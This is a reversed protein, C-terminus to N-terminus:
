QVVCKTVGQFTISRDPRITIVPTGSGFYLTEEGISNLWAPSQATYLIAQAKLSESVAGGACLVDVQVPQELELKGAMMAIHSNGVGIVALNARSTHTLDLTLGELIDMTGTGSDMEQLVVTEVPFEMDAPTQRLDVCLDWAPDGQEYLYQRVANRNSWGGRFLVVAHEQRTIVACPNGATGVLAIRVVGQELPVCLGIAAAGCLLVASIGWKYKKQHWFVGFLVALVALVFITYRRPLVLRAFPLAACWRVVGVLLRLWGELLLSALRFPGNLPSLVLVVLGLLLAPRIMWVVLLNCLVGAGSIELDYFLLAPLTALAALVTTQVTELVRLLISPLKWCSRQWDSLVAATSVGLVASFSLVFGLDCPAYASRVSMLLAAFGTATLLDYPQLFFEGALAILFVSGARVVSASMGTLGMYFLVLAGRALIMRRDFRRRCDMGLGCLLAMHLGSVALLHSVGARRFTQNEAERLSSKDGLLMASEVGGLDWPLWTQLRDSLKRRLRYLLFRVSSDRGLVAGGDLCRAELYVDRSMRTLRYENSPLDNLSLTLKVVDGPATGPFSACYVKFDAKEGDIQQIRLTGRLCDADYASLVCDTEAVAVCRVTQGAYRRVPVVNWLTFVLLWAFGAAAGSLLVAPRRRRLWVAAAFCFVAALGIGLPPLLNAATWEALAFALGFCALGRKM